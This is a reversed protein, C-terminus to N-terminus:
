KLFPLLAKLIGAVVQIVILFLNIALVAVSKLSGTLDDFSLNQTNLLKFQESAEGSIFGRSFLGRSLNPPLPLATGINVNKLGPLNPLLQNNLYDLPNTLSSTLSDGASSYAFSKNSILVLLAVALLLIILFTKKIKGCRGERNHIYWVM